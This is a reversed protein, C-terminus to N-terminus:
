DDISLSVANPPLDRGDFAELTALIEWNMELDDPVEGDYFSTDIAGFVDIVVECDERSTCHDLWSVDTWRDGPAFISETTGHVQIYTYAGLTDATNGLVSLRGVLPFELPGVLADAPVRLRVQQRVETGDPSGNTVLRMSDRSVSGTLPGDSGDGHELTM